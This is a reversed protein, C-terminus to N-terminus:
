MYPHCILLKKCKSKEKARKAICKKEAAAAERRSRRRRRKIKIKKIAAVSQTHLVRACMSEM